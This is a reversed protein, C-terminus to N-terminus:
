VSRVPCPCTYCEWHSLVISLCSTEQECGDHPGLPLAMVQSGVSHLLFLHDVNQFLDIDAM